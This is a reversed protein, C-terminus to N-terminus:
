GDMRGTRVCTMETAVELKVHVWLIRMGVSILRM